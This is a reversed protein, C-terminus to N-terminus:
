RLLATSDLPRVQAVIVADVSQSEVGAMNSAAGKLVSVGMLQKKELEKRMGSGPRLTLVDHKDYKCTPYSFPLFYIPNPPPSPPHLTKETSMGLSEPRSIFFMYLGDHPEVALIDFDEDRGVLLETFKGSGAGLDVIRARKVGSIQLHDLFRTM